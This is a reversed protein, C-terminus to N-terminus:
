KNPAEYLSRRKREAIKNIIEPYLNFPEIHLLHSITQEISFKKDKLIRIFADEIIGVMADTIESETASEFPENEASDLWIRQVPVSEEIIELLNEIIKRYAGSNKLMDSIISHQKNIRYHNKEKIWAFEFNSLQKGGGGKGRHVYVNRARERISYGLRELRLKCDAPPTASSKKVDISWEFDDENTIDIKIRALGHLEDKIWPKPNGLGLWSGAVLLRKNRYIYFGQQTIWGKEGGMALYINKDPIFEKHPLVFGQATIHNKKGIKIEPFKMTSTLSPFPNWSKIEKGDFILRLKGEDIFRHFVMSLHKSVKDAVNCYRDYTFGSTVVRDLNELLVVTGHVQKELDKFEQLNPNNAGILLFLGDIPSQALKDLDWRYCSTKNAKRSYVTLTKCQSFSATKLGLGFRGLDKPNREHYVGKQALNMADILEDNSMGGGDDVITIYSDVGKWKFNIFVTKADAAISNDILDAIATEITYGIGRLADLLYFLPPNILVKDTM